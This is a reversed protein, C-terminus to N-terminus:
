RGALRVRPDLVAQVLDAALSALVVAAGALLSLAQVLQYDRKQVAQVLLSGLGPIQFVQELVSRYLAEKSDFHRYLIPESVGAARAIDATTTGRYSSETFLRIATDVLALRREAAPMRATPVNM